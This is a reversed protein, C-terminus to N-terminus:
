IVDIMMMMYIYIYIDDYLYLIYIVVKRLAAQSVGSNEAPLKPGQIPREGVHGQGTPDVAGNKPLLKM